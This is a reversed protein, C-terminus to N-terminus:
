SLEATLTGRQQRRYRAPTTGFRRRFVKTLYSQDVFGCELAILKLPKESRLLLDAARDTRMQTLLDSFTRGFHKRFQRSFHAPSMSVAKAADDRSIRQGCHEAMHRLVNAMQVVQAQLRNRHITDMIRDLMEHLWHALEEDSRISALRTMNEFHRGLLEGPEGGAEVASRSMTAVLELFFSKLLDLRKGAHHIMGVLLRNLVARAQGREGKRIAAILAPEEVLYL